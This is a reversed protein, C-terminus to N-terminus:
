GTGPGPAPIDSVFGSLNGPAGLFSSLAAQAREGFLVAGQIRAVTIAQRLAEEAEKRAGLGSALIEGRVRHAEAEFCIEGTKRMQTIAQDVSSLAEDRSGELLRAEGLLVRALPHLMGAGTRSARNLGDEMLAIASGGGGQHVMAFGRLVDAIAAYLAFGAHRALEGAETAYALAELSSRDITAALAGFWNAFVQDFANGTSRAIQLARETLDAARLREGQLLCAIALQSRAAVAPHHTFILAWEPSGLPLSDGLLVAKQLHARGSSLKGTYLDAVGVAFHGGASYAPAATEPTAELMAQGAQASADYEAKVMYFSALGFLAALVEIEDGGAAGSLRLMRQAAPGIDPHAYGKIRALLSMLKGQLLLEWRNRNGGRVSEARDLLSIARRLLDETQEFGLAAEAVAAARLIAEIVREIGVVPAAEILHHAVAAPDSLPSEEL